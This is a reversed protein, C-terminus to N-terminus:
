LNRSAANLLLRIKALYEGRQDVPVGELILLLSTTFFRRAELEHMGGMKRGIGNLDKKMATVAAYLIGAQFILGVGGVIWPAIKAWDSVIGGEDKRDSVCM